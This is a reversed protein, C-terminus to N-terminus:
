SLKHRRINWKVASYIGLVIGMAVLMVINEDIPVVLGVPPPPPPPPGPGGPGGQALVEFSVAITLTITSYIKKLKPSMVILPLM